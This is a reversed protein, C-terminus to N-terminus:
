EGDPAPAAFVRSFFIANMFLRNTGYFVARFNPDDAFLVVSGKGRREAVLMPSGAIEQQRRTSAYGAVLPSEPDYRAVTAYPNAPTRLVITTNRQSAIRRDHFGYGLPHTIDLDSEFLAGGIVDEAERRAFDAYDYRESPKAPTSDATAKKEGLLAKQAWDAAQRMAILTGGEQEIWQKLRALLKKPLAAHGGPLVLHTYRSWDISGLRDKEVLTVPMQMRVDLLHWVEGADYRAIGGDFVLLVRPASLTAFSQNGGFDAGATATHGSSLAHVVIGDKQAIERVIRHAREPDGARAALPVFIAGRDFAVAGRTTEARFPARAVRARIGAALLRYLARPTYYDDWSFAYGYSARDPGRAADWTAHAREGLLASRYARGMAAHDLDFALPVTWGSVDYFIAEAFERPREFIGRLLVYQKQELPVVYSEGARYLRGDIRVDRALHWAAIDNRELLELFHLRRARDPSTFIFARRPDKAAEAVADRFFQREYALLDGRLRRAGEISSLATRFHTRINDGLTRVGNPTEIAGGRAAAAEFLIGVSGNVQPYTSGKGIYFNDFGEESYYLRAESDLFDRHVAAMKQALARAQEPILPNKRAPVGPHFYYTSNAGMEHYDVTVNPKWAHWARMWAQPEPQTQFLWQRNLDFWYHNTRAAIWLNHAAHAPDTVPVKSLFSLVHDIRRAHGDPNFIATILIVSEELTRDIGPGRAAALHYVLPLAAEMGSAEAGHVGFNLWTVVPMDATPVVDSAPDGLAVHRARIEEIRALNAPSSVVIFEIPRGEHSHGITTRQMRPSADAVARIYDVFRDHRTPQAGLQHGLVTDPTLVAPDYDVGDPLYYAMPEARVVFAFLLLPLLLVARALM